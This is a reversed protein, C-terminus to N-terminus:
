SVGSPRSRPSVVRDSWGAQDGGCVWPRVVSGICRVLPIGDLAFESVSRVALEGFWNVFWNALEGAFEFPQQLITRYFKAPGGRTDTRVERPSGELGLQSMDGSVTM